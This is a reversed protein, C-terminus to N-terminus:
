WKENHYDKANNWGDNPDQNSDWASPLNPDAETVQNVTAPVTPGNFAPQDQLVTPQDVAAEQLITPQDQLVTAEQPVAPQDVTAKQLITAQNVIVQQKQLIAAVITSKKPKKSKKTTTPFVHSPKKNNKKKAKPKVNFDVEIDTPLQELQKLQKESLGAKFPEPCTQSTHGSGYCYLCFDANEDESEEHNELDQHHKLAEEAENQKPRMGSYHGDQVGNHHIWVVTEDSAGEAYLVISSDPLHLGLVLARGERAGYERLTSAVQDVSYNKHFDEGLVTSAEAKNIRTQVEGSNALTQLEEIQPPRITEHQAPISLTLAYLGCQLATAPTPLLVYGHPFSHDFNHGRNAPTQWTSATDNASPVPISTSSAVMPPLTTDEEDSALDEEEQEEPTFDENMEVHIYQEPHLEKHLTEDAADLKTKKTNKTPFLFKTSKETCYAPKHSGNCKWCITVKFLPCKKSGDWHNGGCESCKARPCEIYNHDTSRCLKCWPLDCDITPHPGSCRQCQKRTPCDAKKHGPEGCGRCTGRFPITRPYPCTARSHGEQFCNECAPENECEARAHGLRQCNNCLRTNPANTEFVAGMGKFLLYEQYANVIHPHRLLQHEDKFKYTKPDFAETARVPLYVFKHRSGKVRADNDTATFPGLKKRPEVDVNTFAEGGQISQYVIARLRKDVFDEDILQHCWNTVGLYPSILLLTWKSVDVKFRKEGLLRRFFERIYVELVWLQMSLNITTTGGEERDTYTGKLMIMVCTSPINFMSKHIKRAAHVENPEATHLHGDNLAGGYRYKSFWAVYPRCGQMRMQDALFIVKLGAHTAWTFASFKLTRGFYTRKDNKLLQVVYPGKQRPDGVLKGFRLSPFAALFAMFFAPQSAPDEDKIFFIPKFRDSFGPRIAQGCTTVVLNMSSLAEARLDTILSNLHATNFTADSPNDRKTELMQLLTQWRDDVGNLNENLYTVMWQSLSLEKVKFRRDKKKKNDASQQGVDDIMKELLFAPQVEAGFYTRHQVPIFNGIFESKETEWSHVRCIRIQTVPMVADPNKTFFAEAAETLKEAWENVLNNTDCIIIGKLGNLSLMLTINVVLFTKGAGPVGEFLAIGHRWYDKNFAQVLGKKHTSRWGKTFISIDQPILKRLDIELYPLNANAYTMFEAWHQDLRQHVNGTGLQVFDNILRVLDNYTKDNFTKEISLWERFAQDSEIYKKAKLISDIETLTVPVKTGVTPAAMKDKGQWDAYVPRFIMVLTEGAPNLSCSPVVKGFWLKNRSELYDAHTQEILDNKEENTETFTTIDGYQEAPEEDVKHPGKFDPKRDKPDTPEPCPPVEYPMHIILTDEQKPKTVDKGFRVSLLYMNPESNDLEAVKRASGKVPLIACSYQSAAIEIHEMRAINNEDTLAYIYRQALAYRNGPVREHLLYYDHHIEPRDEADKINGQRYEHKNPSNDSWLWSPDAARDSIARHGLKALHAKTSAEYKILFEYRHETKNFDNDIIKQVKDRLSSLGPLDASNQLVPVEHANLLMPRNTTFSVLARGKREFDAPLNLHAPLETMDKLETVKYNFIDAANVRLEIYHWPDLRPNILPDQLLKTKSTIIMSAPLNKERTNIAVVFSSIKSPDRNRLDAQAPDQFTEGDIALYVNLQSVIEKKLKILEPTDELHADPALVEPPAPTEQWGDSTVVGAAPTAQLANNTAPASNGAAPTTQWANNSAPASNEWTNNDDAM